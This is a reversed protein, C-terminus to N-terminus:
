VEEGAYVRRAWSAGEGHVPCDQAIHPAIMDPGSGPECGICADARSLVLAFIGGVQLWEGGPTGEPKDAVMFWRPDDEEDLVMFTGDPTETVRATMADHQSMLEQTVRDLDDADM